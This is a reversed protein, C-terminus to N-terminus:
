KNSLCKTNEKRSIENMKRISISKSPNFKKGFMYRILQDALYKTAPHNNDYTGKINLSTVLMRGRGAKVEFMYAKNRAKLYHDISRIIPEPRDRGLAEMDLPYVGRIMEIFQFDCYGDHPFDGLAPHGSIITGSNGSSGANWPITRFLHCFPLRVEPFFGSSLLLIKGGAYLYKVMASTLSDTIVLDPHSGLDEKGEKTYRSLPYGYPNYLDGLATNNCLILGQENYFFRRPFIWLPWGNSNIPKGNLNTLQVELIIKRPKELFPFGVELPLINKVEGKGTKEKLSIKGDLISDRGDSFKWNLRTTSITQQSFNSLLINLKVKEDAWYSCRYGDDLLLAAEDNVRRFEGASVNKPCGFDDLLGEVAHVTDTLLWLIYGSVSKHKRAFEIGEKRCVAQLKESNKVFLPILHSLGKRKAAEEAETIWYPKAPLGKYKSALKPNPYSSWWAYEHLIIPRECKNIQWDRYADRKRASVIIECIDTKRRGFKTKLSPGAGGTIDTILAQPNLRQALTPLEQNFLTFSSKSQEHIHLESGMSYNIVSPHNRDQRVINTLEKRFLKKFKDPPANRLQRHPENVGFPMEETVLLGVEDAAELFEPTFVDVCSKVYNFGYDRATKIRRRYFDKDQPPCVTEPYIHDDGYGRLFIIEGNLLIKGGKVEIKRMGFRTRVQDRM